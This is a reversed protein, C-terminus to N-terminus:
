ETLTGTGGGGPTQAVGCMPGIGFAPGITYSRNFPYDAVSAPSLQYNACTLPSADTAVFDAACLFGVSPGGAEDCACVNEWSIWLLNSSCEFLFGVTVSGGTCHCPTNGDPVRAALTATGFFGARPTFCIRQFATYNLTVASGAYTLTLPATGDLAVNGCCVYGGGADVAMTEANLTTTKACGWETAAPTAATYTLTRNVSVFRSRSYILVISNGPVAGSLGSLTFNGAADSTTTGLLAGGATSDHAEVAVGPLVSSNCGLTHGDLTPSACGCQCGGPSQSVAAM